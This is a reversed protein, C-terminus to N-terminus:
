GAHFTRRDAVRELQANLWAIPVSEGGLKRNGTDIGHWDSGGSPVLNLHNAVASLRAKDEASHSPHLVEVGDLGIRRMLSLSELTGDSSPHALVAIGGVEHVLEIAENLAFRTKGVYAPRGAGLYRDFAARLTPVHGAAVMARAVHPRGVASGGAEAFVAGSTLPVGLTRLKEVIRLAREVRQARLEALRSELMALHKLHLGLVHIEREDDHASLEVGAVLQIGAAEAAAAAAPIGSTSDHDTLAIAVLKARSAAAVVQEPELVGDSATSHM